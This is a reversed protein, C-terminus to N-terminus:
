LFVFFFGHVWRELRGGKDKGGFCGGRGRWGLGVGLVWGSLRMRRRWSLGGGSVMEESQFVRGTQFFEEVQEEAIGGRRAHDQGSRRHPLVGKRGFGTEALDLSHELFDMFEAIDLFFREGQCSKPLRGRKVKEGGFGLVNKRLDLFFRLDFAFLARDKVGDIGVVIKLVIESRSKITASEFM